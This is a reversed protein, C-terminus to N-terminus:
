NNLFESIFKEICKLARNAHFRQREDTIPVRSSIWGCSALSRLMIFLNVARPNTDFKARNDNYSEILASQIELFRPNDIHQILASALDYERFGFGSDDFDIVWLQNADKLINEQLLDAHILGFDKNTIGKFYPRLTKRMKNLLEAETATLSPNEWFKGWLPNDGIFGVENWSNRKFTKTEIQDTVNHLEAILRGIDSFLSINDELTDSIVAGIEHADIWSILSTTPRKKLDITLNGHLTRIPAPCPFNHKALAEMWLLESNIAASTQYGPRHFRLAGRGGSNLLVEFVINERNKILRPHTSVGGWERAVDTAQMILTEENM